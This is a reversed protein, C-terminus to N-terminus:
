ESETYRRQRDQRVKHSKHRSIGTHRYFVMHLQQAWNARFNRNAFVIWVCHVMFFTVHEKQSYSQSIM